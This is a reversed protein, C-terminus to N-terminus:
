KASPQPPWVFAIEDIPYTVRTVSDNINGVVMTVGAPSIESVIGVLGTRSENIGDPDLYGLAGIKPEKIDTGYQIVYSSCKAPEQPIEIGSNKLTWGIFACGWPLAQDLHGGVTARFYELIRPNSREGKWEKVGVEALALKLWPATVQAIESVTATDTLQTCGTDDLNVQTTFPYAKANRFVTCKTTNGDKTSVVTLMFDPNSIDNFSARGYSDSRRSVPKEDQRSPALWVDANEVGGAKNYVVVWVAHSGVLQDWLYGVKGSLGKALSTTM